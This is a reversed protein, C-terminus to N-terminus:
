QLPLLICFDTRGPRSDCEILGGHQQVFTQALTLGLGTGGERGSVLPFFIRDRIDEPIGPGDDVVHLELALKWRQKAIVVQRVVRTRLEIRGRGHLAQAANRVLNLLVQVLQERDGTLAPISVDYDRVIRLGRPYEALLLSRVHECVEHINLEALMRAKRHPALLRDVLDQLRDAEKIIVETYERLDASDLESQLLQAAGRIGGLPNKIEHALNRVLERNAQASDILREERDVRWRKDQERFELLLAGPFGDLRSAMTWLALPERAARELLLDVRKQEYGGDLADRLLAEIVHGNAFLKPFSQGIVMRSSIDFLAEASANVRVVRAQPDLVVVSTALLDLSDQASASVMGNVGIGTPRETQDNSVVNMPANRVVPARSTAPSRGRLLSPASLRGSEMDLDHQM